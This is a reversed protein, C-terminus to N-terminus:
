LRLLQLLKDQISLLKKRSTYFKFSIRSNRKTYCCCRTELLNGVYDVLDEVKGEDGSTFIDELSPAFPRLEGDETTFFSKAAADTEYQKIVANLETQYDENGIVDQFTNNIYTPANRIINMISDFGRSFSGKDEM